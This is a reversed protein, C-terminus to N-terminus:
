GVEGGGRDEQAEDVLNLSGLSSTCPPRHCTSPHSSARHASEDDTALTLAQQHSLLAAVASWGARVHPRPHHGCLERAWGPQLVAPLRGRGHRGHVQRRKAQQGSVFEDRGKRGAAASRPATSSEPQRTRASHTSWTPSRASGFAPLSPAAESPWSRGSGKDQSGHLGTDGAKGGPTQPHKVCRHRSRVPGFVDRGVFRTERIIRGGHWEGVASSFSERFVPGGGSAIDVYLVGPARPRYAAWRTVRHPTGM